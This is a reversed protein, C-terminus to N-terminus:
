ENEGVIEFTRMVECNPCELELSSEIYVAVWEHMCIDCCVLNTLCKKVKSDDM